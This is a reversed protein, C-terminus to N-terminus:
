PRFPAEVYVSAEAAMYSLIFIMWLNTSGGVVYM